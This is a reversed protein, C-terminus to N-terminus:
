RLLYVEVLVTGAEAGDGSAVVSTYAGPNLALLLASDKSDRALPFAGVKSAAESVPAATWNDNEGSFESGCFVKLTPDALADLVGFVGLGPGIGRLLLSAPAGEEVTFGCILSNQGRGAEGRASFNVLGGDGDGGADYVEALVVGRGGNELVKMTYPGPALTTVVAADLDGQLFGFAGCRVAADAVATGSWGANSAVLLGDGNFLQLLPQEIYGDVGFRGLAPGAARLLVNRPYEGGVVFGLILSRGEGIQMRASINKVRARNTAQEPAAATLLPVKAIVTTDHAVSTTATEVPPTVTLAGNVFIFGYNPSNLSGVSAIIAYTGATSATNASTTVVPYGPLSARSQGLVFGSFTVDFVPNSGGFARTKDNAKVTLPAKVVTVSGPVYVINYNQASLTGPTAIVPYRGVGSSSTATTTLSPNGRLVSPLDGNLFGTVTGSLTPNPAGYTRSVEHATFTLTARSVTLKGDVFNFAYNPSFLTGATPTISYAGAASGSTAATWIGPFGSIVAPTEGNQFGTFTVTLPPNANGYGRFQDNAAVSIIAKLVTLAGSEFTFVYNSAVLSGAAVSIPHQGVALSGPVTVQPAGALVSSNDGSKFGSFSVDLVPNPAGYTKSKNNAKVTLNAPHVALAGNVFVFAYNPATLTGASALIPYRGVPSAENAETALVPFGNISSRTDGNVFGSYSARLLPTADGYTKSVDDVSITLLAKAVFAKGEVLSFNYNAASLTGASLRVPYAGVGSKANATTSIGPFGRLVSKDEQNVFGDVTYNLVPLPSGYTVTFSDATLRLTAKTVTLYSGVFVFNYNSSVLTGSSVVIPFLGIGGGQPRSVSLSPLGSIGANTASEGYAFGSFTATLVPLATGYTVTLADATVVITSQAVTIILACSAVGAPSTATLFARFVGTQKPAGTIVGSGEDLSLGLPLGTGSYRGSGLSSAVALPAVPKGYVGALSLPPGEPLLPLQPAPPTANLFLGSLSFCILALIFSVHKKM